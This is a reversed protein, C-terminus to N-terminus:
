NKVDKPNSKKRFIGMGNMAYGHKELLECFEHYSLNFVYDEDLGVEKAFQSINM